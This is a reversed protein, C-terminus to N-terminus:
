LRDDIVYRFSYKVLYLLNEEYSYMGAKRVIFYDITKYWSM